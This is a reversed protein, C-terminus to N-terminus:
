RAIAGAPSSPRTERSRLRGHDVSFGRYCSSAKLGRPPLARKLLRADHKHRLQDARSHIISLDDNLRSNTTTDLQYFTLASIRRSDTRSWFIPWFNSYPSLLRQDQDAPPRSSARRRGPVWGTELSTSPISSPPTFCSCIAWLSPIRSARRGSGDTSLFRSIDYPQPIPTNLSSAAFLSTSPRPRLQATRSRSETKISPYGGFVQGCACQEVPSSSAIKVAAPSIPLM